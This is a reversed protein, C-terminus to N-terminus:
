EIDCNSNGEGPTYSTGFADYLREVKAGRKADNLILSEIFRVEEETSNSTNSICFYARDEEQLAAVYSETSVSKTLKSQLAMAYQLEAARVKLNNPYKKYIVLEVDDRIGNSNADIGAITANNRKPDPEPPLNSGDVDAMTLRQARIEAVLADSRAKSVPWNIETLVVGFYIIAVVVLPLRAYRWFRKMFQMLLNDRM